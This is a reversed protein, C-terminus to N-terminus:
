KISFHAHEFNSVQSFLTCARLQKSSQFPRMQNKFESLNFV